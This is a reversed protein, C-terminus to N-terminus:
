ENEENEKSSSPPHKSSKPPTPNQNGRTTENEEKPKIIRGDGFEKTFYKLCETYGQAYYMDENTHPLDPDYQLKLHDFSTNWVRWFRMTTQFRGYWIFFKCILVFAIFLLIYLLM